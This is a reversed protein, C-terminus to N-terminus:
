IVCCIEMFDPDQMSVIDQQQLESDTRPMIGNIYLLISNM